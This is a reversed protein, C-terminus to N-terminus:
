LESFQPLYGVIGRRGALAGPSLEILMFADSPGDLHEWRVQFRHAPAFGFRAYYGPHGLVFVVGHHLEWCATLGARVLASGVGRRQQPPEVAIPGLAMAAWPADSTVSVPSVLAHGVVRRDIEAVLSVYPSAGSARIARVLDAEARTPFASSEVRDIEDVDDPRERRIDIQPQQM